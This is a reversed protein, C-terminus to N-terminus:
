VWFNEQALSLLVDFVKYQGLSKKKKHIYKYLPVIDDYSNNDFGTLGWVKM